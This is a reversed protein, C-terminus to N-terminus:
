ETPPVNSATPQAFWLMNRLPATMEFVRYRYCRWNAPDWVSVDLPTGVGPWVPMAVTTRCVNDPDPREPTMSRSVIAVRVAIVKRWDNPTAAAPMTHGWQDVGALNITGVSAAASDIRCPQTQPYIGGPPCNASFGYQAQLQVIGDSVALTDNPVFADRSILQSQAISYTISAPTPGLNFLRGGSGMVGAAPNWAPYNVPLAGAPSYTASRVVGQDDTYTAGGFGINDTLGSTTPISTVQFLSCPLGASAAVVVDGERFQFRTDKLQFRNAFQRAVSAPFAFSDASGYTFTLADPATAGGDTIRLAVLPFNVAAGTPNHTGSGQCGLLPMYNFGYGAMRADREILYLSTVGNQQSDGAGATTRRQSESVAFIQFMVVIALMGIIMGVMLEVLSFGSQGPPLFPVRRTM